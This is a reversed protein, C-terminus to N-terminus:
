PTAGRVNTPSPRTAPARRLALVAPVAFAWFGSAPMLAVGWAMLALLGWGLGRPLPEGRREFALVMCGLLGIGLGATVYWFGVGREAILVADSEVALLVGAEWTSRLSEPYLAPAVLVHVAAIGLLSWGVLPRHRAHTM